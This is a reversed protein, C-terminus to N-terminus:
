IFFSLLARLEKTKIDNTGPLAPDGPVRVVDDFTTTEEGLDVQVKFNDAQSYWNVGLRWERAKEDTQQTIGLFEPPIAVFRADDFEYQAFRGVLQWREAVFGGGEIAWTTLGLDAFDLNADQRENELTWTQYSANAHWRGGRIAGFLEIASHDDSGYRCRSDLGPACGAGSRDGQLGDVPDYLYGFGVTWQLAEARKATTAKYDFGGKNQFEFRFTTLLGDNSNSTANAGDGNQMAASWNIQRDAMHGHYMVGVDRSPSFNRTGIPAEVLTQHFDSFLAFLDFPAKFQGVRWNNIPSFDAGVWADQLRTEGDGYEAELRYTLWPQFAKGDFIVRARRVSYDSDADFKTSEVELERWLAGGFTVDDKTYSFKGQVGAHVNLEFEGDKLTFGGDEARGADGALCALPLALFAILSAGTSRLMTRKM